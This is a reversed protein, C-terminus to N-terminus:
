SDCRARQPCCLYDRLNIWLVISPFRPIIRRMKDELERMLPSLQFRDEAFCETCGSTTPEARGRESEGTKILTQGRVPRWLAESSELREERLVGGSPRPRHKQARVRLIHALAVSRHKGARCAFVCHFESVGRPMPVQKDEPVM